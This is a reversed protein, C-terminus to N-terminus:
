PMRARDRPMPRSRTVAEVHVVADYLDPLVVARTMAAESRYIYGTERIPHPARFWQAVIGDAPLARLDLVGCRIRARSFAASLHHDPVPPLDIALLNLHHNADLAAISGSGFLMGIAVYDAGYRERLYTGTNRIEGTAAPRSRLHYSHAWVAVRATPARSRIWAINDAMALDRIAQGKTGPPGTMAEAVAQQLVIVMQRAVAFEEAGAVTTFEAENRDFLRVLEALAAVLGGQREASLEAVADRTFFHGLPATPALWAADYLPAVRRLFAAVGAAAGGLEQMDIGVLHVKRDHPADANWARLWDVLAAIEETDWVWHLRSLWRVPNTDGGQVYADLALCETFGGEFAVVTFGQRAVLYEVLRHKITFMEHSGHTAEGLGVVPADGVIADLGALDDTGHGAEGHAFVVTNATIWDSVQQPAPPPTAPLSATATDGVREADATTPNPGLMRIRYRDGPPLLATFSGDSAVPVVFSDGDDDSYRSIEVHSDRPLAGTVRGGVAVGAGRGLVLDLQMADTDRQAMALFNGVATTAGPVCASVAYRGPRTRFAFRGDAGCCVHQAVGAGELLAVTANPVPQGGADTVVGGLAVTLAAPPEIAEVRVDDFWATGAGLLAVGFSVTRATPVEIEAVAETWEAVTGHAPPDTAISVAREGDDARVWPTAVHTVGDTRLWARVRVLKGTLGTAPVVITAAILGDCDDSHMRLCRTGGHPRDDVVAFASGRMTWGSPIGDAGVAEFGQTVGAPSLSAVPLSGACACAVLLLPAVRM